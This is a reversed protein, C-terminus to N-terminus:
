KLFVTEFQLDSTDENHIFLEKLYDEKTGSTRNLKKVRRYISSMPSRFQIM